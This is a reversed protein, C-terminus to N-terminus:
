YEIHFELSKGDEIFDEVSENITITKKDESVKIGKGEVKTAPRPLRLIFTTTPVMGQGALEEMTQVGQDDGKKAYKDAKLVKSISNATFKMDYYDDIGGEPLDMPGEQDAGGAGLANMSAKNSLINTIKNVNSLEATSKFPFNTKTKFVDNALDMTLQMTGKSALQKENTSLEQISDILTGLSITTDFKKEDMEDLGEGGQMKALNILQSLDVSTSYNGSGDANLILEKTTECSTLTLGLAVAGALFIRKM